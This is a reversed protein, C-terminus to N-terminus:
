ADYVVMFVDFILMYSSANIFHCFYHIYLAKCYANNM